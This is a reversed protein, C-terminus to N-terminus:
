LLTNKILELLKHHTEEPKLRGNDLVIDFASTDCIDNNYVKKFRDYDQSDKLCIKEKLEDISFPKESKSYYSIVARDDLPSNLYIKIADSGKYLYPITRSDLVINDNCALQLLLNDLKIDDRYLEVNKINDENLWEHSKCSDNIVISSSKGIEKLLLASACIYELSLAKALLKGQYSKGCATLGCIFIKISKKEM